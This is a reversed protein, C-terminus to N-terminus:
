QARHHATSSDPIRGRRTAKDGRKKGSRAPGAGRQATPSDPRQVAPSGTFARSQQKGNLVEGFDMIAGSVPIMPHCSFKAM